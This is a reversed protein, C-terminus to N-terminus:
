LVTSDTSWGMIWDDRVQDLKVMGWSELLGVAAFQGYQKSYADHSKQEIVVIPKCRKITEEAGQLVRFEYGECDVKIYNVENFNLKDLRVVQVDGTGMTNPDLHSHGSNDETIIMNGTTDQDGLAIPRVEFNDGKVNTELCERFIAVPEFAIVHNFSKVLDRSWLGVNAGVDLAVNKTNCLEISRLRVDVQYEAPLGKDVSKKLMRPLHTEFNPFQWGYHERM